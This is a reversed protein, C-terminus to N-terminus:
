RLLRNIGKNYIVVEKDSNKDSRKIMSAVKKVATSRLYDTKGESKFEGKESMLIKRM